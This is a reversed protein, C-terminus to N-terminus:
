NLFSRRCRDKFQRAREADLDFVVLQDIEPCVIRLFQTIEFNILGCGIVGVINIDKGERLSHAALAASAATRKANIVSGEIITEPRGTLPSNLIVIASARASGLNLNNPFSSVWKLGAIDFSSPDFRGRGGQFNTYRWRAHNYRM